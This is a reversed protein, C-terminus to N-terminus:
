QKILNLTKYEQDFSLCIYYVGDYRDSLDIAINNVKINNKILLIRGSADFMKLDYEGKERQTHIICFDKTPNPYVYAQEHDRQGVSYTGPLNIDRVCRVANFVYRVDGQPGFYQPYAASDGTKPDSRQSGAGHVDRLWELEDM